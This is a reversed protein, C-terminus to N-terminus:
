NGRVYHLSTQSVRDNGERGINSHMSYLGHGAWSYRSNFIKNAKRAVVPEKIIEPVELDRFDFSIKFTEAHDKFSTLM